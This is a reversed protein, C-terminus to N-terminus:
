NPPLSLSLLDLLDECKHANSYKNNHMLLNAWQIRCTPSHTYLLYMFNERFTLYILLYSVSIYTFFVVLHFELIDRVSKSHHVNKISSWYIHKHDLGLEKLVERFRIHKQLTYSESIILFHISNSFTVTPGYHGYNQVRLMWDDNYCVRLVCWWICKFCTNCAATFM